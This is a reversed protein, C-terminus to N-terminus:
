PKWEDISKVNIAGRQTRSDTIFILSRYDPRHLWQASFVPKEAGVAHDYILWQLNRKAGGPSITASPTNPKIDFRNDRSGAFVTLQRTTFNIMRYGGWPLMDKSDDFPIVRYQIGNKQLEKPLPVFLLLIESQGSALNAIAVPPPGQRVGAENFPPGSPPEKDFFEVKAPGQYAIAESRKSFPVAFSVPIIVAPSGEKIQLTRVWLESIGSDAALTFIKAKRAAQFPYPKEAAPAPSAPAAPAVGNQALALSDNRASSALAGNQASASLAPLLLLLSALINSKLKM